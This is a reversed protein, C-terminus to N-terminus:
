PFRPAAPLLRGLHEPLAAQLRRHAARAQRPDDRVARAVYRLVTWCYREEDTACEAPCAARWGNRPRQPTEADLQRFRAAAERLTLHDALFELAVARKAFTRRRAREIEAQLQGEHSSGAPGPRPLPERQRSLACAGAAFAVALLCLGGRLACRM